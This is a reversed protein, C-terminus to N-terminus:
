LMAMFLLKATLSMDSVALMNNAQIRTIQGARYLKLINM